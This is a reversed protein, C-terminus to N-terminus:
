QMAKSIIWRNYKKLGMRGFFGLVALIILIILLLQWPIIFFNYKANANQNTAGWALNIRATYWGFHFESWETKVASWFGGESIEPPAWIVEFKRASNPLVNGEKKNAPITASTLGFSNKIKVEGLPMVRDGGTNNFRYALTIPLSSFFRQKDKGEFELLGGGEKVEGSVRLLMLVGIKSGVTVQGGGQAKPAQSGFFIAAFYGGSEADKPITISFSIKKRENSKLTMQSETKIWTALGEKAGIFSPAGSEGSPEFNEFSSYFIKTESQENLLEIEEILTQGPDGSIELKVPSVTLGFVPSAIGAMAIMLIIYLLNRM